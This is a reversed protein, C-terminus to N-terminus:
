EFFRNFGIMFLQNLIQTSLSADFVVFKEPSFKGQAICVLKDGLFIEKVSNRAGSCKITFSQHNLQGKVVYNYFVNWGSTRVSPFQYMSTSDYGNTIIYPYYQNKRDMVEKEITFRALTDKELFLYHFTGELFNTFLFQEGDQLNEPDVQTTLKLLYNKDNIVDRCDQRLYVYDSKAYHATKKIAATLDDPYKEPKKGKIKIEEYIPEGLRFVESQGQFSYSFINKNNAIFTRPKNYTKPFIYNDMIYGPILKLEVTSLDNKPDFLIATASKFMGIFVRPVVTLDNYKISGAYYTGMGPSDGTSIILNLKETFFINKKSDLLWASIMFVTNTRKVLNSDPPYNESMSFFGQPMVELFDIYLHLHNTDPDIYNPRISKIDAGPTVFTVSLNVTDALSLGQQKRLTQNLQSTITHQIASDLLYTKVPYNYEVFRAQEFIVVKQGIVTFSSLLLLLLFCAQNNKMCSNQHETIVQM